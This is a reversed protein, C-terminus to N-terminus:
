RRDQGAPGQHRRRGAGAPHGPSLTTDQGVRTARCTLAGNQNITAASVPSGAAQGGAHERRDPRGRQRQFRRGGGRGDVPISEGPRVLFVDGTRVEAVPVTVEQGGRVVCATQPALQMLSKLADTTRGKSYAELTKGVTILTLIMAASEFYLDHRYQEVLAADGSALGISIMVLAFVGYALAAGAGLAM